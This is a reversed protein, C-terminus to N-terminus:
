PNEAIRSDNRSDDNIKEMQKQLKRLHKLYMRQAEKPAQKSAWLKLFQRTKSKM